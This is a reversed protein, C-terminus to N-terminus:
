HITWALIFFEFMILGVMLFFISVMWGKGQMEPAAILPKNAPWVKVFDDLAPEIYNPWAPYLCYVGKYEVHDKIVAAKFLGAGEYVLRYKGVPTNPLSSGDAVQASVGLTNTTIEIFSYTLFLLSIALFLVSLILALIKLLIKRPLAKWPYARLKALFPWKPWSPLTISKLNLAMM